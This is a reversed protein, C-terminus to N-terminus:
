GSLSCPLVEMAELPIPADMYEKPAIHVACSPLGRLSNLVQQMALEPMNNQESLHALIVTRAGHRVLDAAFAACDPNSLHGGPGSVREKLHYPYPGLQLLYPDHNSELVAADCGRLLDKMSRPVFGLDTAFGFCFEQSEFKFGLSEEADHPTRFPLVRIQGIDFGKGDKMPNILGPEVTGKQELMKITGKSAFVPAGAKKLFMPLGKVHDIHEHTILVATVDQLTLGIYELGKTIKKLSVGLDIVIVTTGEVYVGCNGSSGSAISYYFRGRRM